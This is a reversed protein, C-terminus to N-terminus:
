DSPIQPMLDLIAPLRDDEFYSSKKAFIQPLDSLITGLHFRLHGEAASREGRAIADIVAEHQEVVARMKFLDLSFFRVRDMQSKIDSLYQWTGIKGALEAMTRHFQEDLEIFREPDGSEAERQHALQWRLQEVAVADAHEALISVIDTEVAERIFRAQLVTDIQIRSVVTGSQPRITVLNQASLRVFAERVSQRSVGFGKAIEQESLRTGPLLQNQIIRRRLIRHLQPAIPHDPDLHVPEGPAQSASLQSTM